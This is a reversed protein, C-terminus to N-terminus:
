APQPPSLSRAMREAAQRCGDSGFLADCAAVADVGLGLLSAANDPTVGGIAVIAIRLERRARTLLDLPANTADPKTSSAFIAGFAIYDAGAREAQIALTLQDYCSAGVIRGSGLRYRAEAVSVDHRGLHVGDAGTEMALDLHDNVIFPVGAERCLQALAHAQEQRLAKGATKNRYQLLRAGGALVERAM